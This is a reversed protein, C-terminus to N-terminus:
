VVREGRTVTVGALSFREGGREVRRRLEGAQVALLASGENFPSFANLFAEVAHRHGLPVTHLQDRMYGAAVALVVQKTDTVTIETSKRTKGGAINKPITRAPVARPSIDLPANLLDEAAARFHDAGTEQAALELAAADLLRREEARKREAEAEAEIIAAQRRQEEQFWRDMEVRQAEDEADAPALAKARKECQSRHAQYLRAIDDDFYAHVRKRYADIELRRAAAFEYDEKSHVKAPTPVWEPPPVTDVVPAVVDAM